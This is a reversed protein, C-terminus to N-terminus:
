LMRQHDYISRFASGPATRRTRQVLTQADGVTRARRFSGSQPAISELDSPFVKRIVGWSEEFAFPEVAPLSLVYAHV